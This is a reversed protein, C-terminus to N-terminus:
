SGRDALPMRASPAVASGSRARRSRRGCTNATPGAPCCCCRAPREAPRLRPGRSRGPRLRRGPAVRCASTSPASAPSPVRRGAPRRARRGAYAWTLDLWGSPCSRGRRADRASPTCRAAGAATPARTATGVPELARAARRGGRRAPIEISACSALTPLASPRPSARAGRRRGTATPSRCSGATACEWARAPAGRRPARSRRARSRWRRAHCQLFRSTERACCAGRPTMSAARHRRDGAPARRRRLDDGAAGDSARAGRPVWAM